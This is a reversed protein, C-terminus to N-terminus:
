SQSKWEPLTDLYRFSIEEYNLQACFSQVGNTVLLYSAKIEINYRAVQDFTEQSLQVKHSKCEVMLWPNFDTDFVVIDYRRKIGNIELGKEVQIKEKPYGISIFHHILLQRVLEEPQLLIYKKRIPDFVFVENENRKLKLQDKYEHLDLDIM